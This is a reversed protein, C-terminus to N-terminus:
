KVFKGSLVQGNNNDTVRYFYIGPVNIKDGILLDDKNQFPINLVVQGIDNVVTVSGTSINNSFVIKSTEDIPNPYITTTKSKPTIQDVGLTCSTTNDFYGSVKPSVTPTTSNTNFCFLQTGAEFNLPFLPFIPDDTCGIGEIVDFDKTPM